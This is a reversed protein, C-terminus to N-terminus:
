GGALTGVGRGPGLPPLPYGLTSAGGGGWSLVANPTSLVETHRKRERLLVKNNTM